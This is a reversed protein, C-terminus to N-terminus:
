DRICRDQGPDEETYKRCEKEADVIQGLLV